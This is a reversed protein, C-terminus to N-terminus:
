EILIGFFPFASDNFTAIALTILATNDTSNDDIGGFAILNIEDSLRLVFSILADVTSIIIDFTNPTVGSTLVVDFVGDARDKLIIVDGVALSTDAVALAVTDIFKADASTFVSSTTTSLLQGYTAADNVNTGDTLNIIKNSNADLIGEMQGGDADLKSTIATAIETLQTNISSATNYGSGIDTPTYNTM